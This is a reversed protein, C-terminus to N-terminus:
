SFRFFFLPGVREQPGQREHPRVKLAAELLRESDDPLSLFLARDKKMDPCATHMGWFYELYARPPADDEDYGQPELKASPCPLGLCRVANTCCRLTDEDWTSKLLYVLKVPKGKTGKNQLRM